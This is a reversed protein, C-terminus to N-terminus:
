LCLASRSILSYRSRSAFHKLPVIMAVEHAISNRATIESAGRILDAVEFSPRMGYLKASRYLREIHDKLRFLVTGKRTPYCRVGEFVGTGYHLANAYYHIRTTEAERIEGDFWLWRALEQSQPRSLMTLDEEPVGVFSPWEMDMHAM